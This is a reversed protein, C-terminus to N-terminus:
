LLVARYDSSMFFLQLIVPAISIALIRIKVSSYRRISQKNVQGYEQGHQGYPGHIEQRLRPAQSETM